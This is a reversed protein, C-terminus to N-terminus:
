PSDIEHRDRVAQGEDMVAVTEAGRLVADIAHALQRRLSVDHEVDRGAHTRQVAGVALQVCHRKGARLFLSSRRASTRGKKPRVM